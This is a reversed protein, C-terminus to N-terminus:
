LSFELNASHLDNQDFVGARAFSSTSELPEGGRARRALHWQMQFRGQERMISTLSGTKHVAASLYANLATITAPEIKFREKAVKSALELKLPVGAIRAQQYMYILPVRALMDAGEQDVGRGQERPCYGCGIDSHVGPFVVESCGDQMTNGVAISDLPFSRRVEHAAVLHVCPVGVPIRLGESDAWSSHGDLLRGALSNGFTNGAGVSAVTDFLGLFDIKISFGGLTMSDAKGLIRADLKCLEALWNTFARAQTAGRSFGFISVHITQVIGPDTKKPRGTNKDTWHQSVAMHLRQLIKKFKDHTNGASGSIPRFFSDDAMARRSAPDLDIGAVLSAAEHSAVLPVKYFYRHINNIAQILAWTIRAEGLYGMAAGRQLDVGEGSDNVQKFPSAVGPIYTKFFNAYNSPKYAWDTEAPLVGLVGLGPYCDYLRAVNSHNKSKEAQIYNNKTGDFFFGFFLNTKCSEGPKGFIPQERQEMLRIVDIQDRDFFDTVVTPSGFTVHLKPCLVATV